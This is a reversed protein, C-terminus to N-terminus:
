SQVNATGPAHRDEHHNTRLAAHDSRRMDGARPSFTPDCQAAIAGILTDVWCPGGRLLLRAFWVEGAQTFTAPKSSAQRTDSRSRLRFRGPGARRRRRSVDHNLDANPGSRRWASKEARHFADAFPTAVM